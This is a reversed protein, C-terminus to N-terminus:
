AELGHLRDRRGSDGVQPVADHASRRRRSRVTVNGSSHREYLHTRVDRENMEEGAEDDAPAGLWTALAEIAM